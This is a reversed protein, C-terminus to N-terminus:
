VALGPILLLSRAVRLRGIVGPLIWAASLAVFSAFLFFIGVVPPGFVILYGGEIDHTYMGWDRLERWYPNWFAHLLLFWLLCTGLMGLLGSPMFVRSLAEGFRILAGGAAM